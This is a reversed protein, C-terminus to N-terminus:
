FNRLTSLQIKVDRAHWNPKDCSWICPGIIGPGFPGFVTNILEYPGIRNIMKMVYVIASSWLLLYHAVAGLLVGHIGDGEVTGVIDFLEPELTYIPWPSWIIDFGFSCPDPQLRGDSARCTDIM